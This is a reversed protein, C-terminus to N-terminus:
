RLLLYVLVIQGISILAIGSWLLWERWGLAVQRTEGLWFQLKSSGIQILDGNRLVTKQFPASNVAALANECTSLVFGEGPDFDLRLHENWVGDEELQLEARPSRGIQVPFRRAVYASGAKKGSVIRLQVM